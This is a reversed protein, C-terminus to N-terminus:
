ENSPYREIPWGCKTCQMWRGHVGYDSIKRPATHPCIHKIIDDTLNIEEYEVIIEIYEPYLLEFMKEYLPYSIDLYDALVEELNLDKIVRVLHEVDFSEYKGSTLIILDGIKFHRKNDKAAYFTIM